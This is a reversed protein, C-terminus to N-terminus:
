LTKPQFSCICVRRTWEADWAASFHILDLYTPRVCMTTQTSQSSSVCVAVTHVSLLSIWLCIYCRVRVHHGSDECLLIWQCIQECNERPSLREFLLCQHSHTRAASEVCERALVFPWHITFPSVSLILVHARTDSPPRSHSASFVVFTLM